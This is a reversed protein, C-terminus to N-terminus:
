DLVAVGALGTAEGEHFDIVIFFRGSNDLGKIALVKHAPVHDYVLCTWTFAASATATVATSPASTLASPSAAVPTPTTTSSPAVLRFHTSLYSDHKVHHRHYGDYDAYIDREESVSEPFPQCHINANDQDEYGEVKSEEPTWSCPQGTCTRAM